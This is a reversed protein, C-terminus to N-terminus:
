KRLAGKGFQKNFQSFLSHLRAIPREEKVPKSTDLTIRLKSQSQFKNNKNENM